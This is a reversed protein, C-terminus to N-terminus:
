LPLYVSVNYEMRKELPFTGPRFRANLNFLPITTYINTSLMHGQDDIQRITHNVEHVRSEPLEGLIKIQNYTEQPIQQDDKLYSESTMQIYRRIYPSVETILARSNLGHKPHSKVKTILLGTWNKGTTKCEISLVMANHVHRGRRLASQITTGDSLLTNTMKNNCFKVVNLDTTSATRINTGLCIEHQRADEFSLTDRRHKCLISNLVSINHNNAGALPIIKFHFDVTHKQGFKRNRIILSDPDSTKHFFMYNSIPGNSLLDKFLDNNEIDKTETNNRKCVSIGDVPQSQLRERLESLIKKSKLTIKQSAM